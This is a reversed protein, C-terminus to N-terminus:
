VSVRRGGLCPRKGDFIVLVMMMMLMMLMMTMTMMIMMLDGWIDLPIWCCGLCGDLMMVMMMMMIM